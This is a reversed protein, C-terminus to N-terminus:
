RDGAGRGLQRRQVAAQDAVEAVVHHALDLAQGVDGGVVEPWGSATSDTM